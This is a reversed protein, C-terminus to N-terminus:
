KVLSVLTTARDDGARLSALYVGSPFGDARWSFEHDGATVTGRFVRDVLAGRLDHVTIEVEGARDVSFALTTAPNFPNPYAALSGTMAAPLRDDNVSSVVNGPAPYILVAGRGDAGYSGIAVHDADTAISQGLWADTTPVSATYLDTEGWNGAGGQAIDFRYVQGASSDHAHSGVWVSGSRIAVADGFFDFDAADSATLAATQTWSGPTLSPNDFVYAAGQVFGSGNVSSAGMVVTTGSIAVSRGARENGDAGTRFLKGLPEWYNVGNRRYVYAGGENQYTGPVMDLLEAGVVLMEGDLDVSTGFGANTDYIDDQIEVVLGWAGVGGEDRHYIFVRGHQASQAKPGGIVIWDGDVDVDHGYEALNQISSPEALKHVETWVGNSREFIYAAGQSSNAGIGAEEAGTVIRDGSIAVAYGLQDFAAGDSATLKQVQTWVGGVLEFVYVAGQASNGAIDAFPAGVVLTTGQLAVDWGFDDAPAGDSAIVVATETIAAATPITGPALQLAAVAVFLISLNTKMINGKGASEPRDILTISL